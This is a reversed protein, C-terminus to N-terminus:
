RQSEPKKEALMDCISNHERAFLIEMMGLGLWFGPESTGDKIPEPIQIPVEGLKLRGNDGRVDEM